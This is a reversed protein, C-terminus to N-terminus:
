EAAQGAEISIEIEVEDAIAPVFAGLNFESRKIETDASFGLTPAGTMPNAGAKNLDVDLVVEKTVGNLTLDGTVKAEDGDDDVEVKTSTFTVEQSGDPSNFFNEGKLHGDMVEAVSLLNSIPFSAQVSSNEPNEADLTITGTVGRVLGYSTSFGMHDYNFAISSHDPDFTYEGSPVSDQAFAPALAFLGLASASAFALLSSKM